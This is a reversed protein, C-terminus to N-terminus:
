VGASDLYQISVTYIGIAIGSKITFNAETLKEFINVYVTNEDHEVFTATQLEIFSTEPVVTMSVVYSCDLSNVTLQANM